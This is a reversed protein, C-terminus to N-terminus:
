QRNLIKYIYINNESGILKTGSATLKNSFLLNTDNLIVFESYKKYVKFITDLVANESVTVGKLDMLYLSNQTSNDVASIARQNRNIGLEKLYRGLNNYKGYKPDSAMWSGPDYRDQFVHRSFWAGHILLSVFVTIVIYNLPQHASIAIKVFTLLQFFIAPVMSIIYYDHEPFQSMMMLFYILNGLWLFLTVKLLLKDAKKYFYIIVAFTLLLTWYMYKSYYQKLWVDKIEKITEGFQAANEIPKIKLLFASSTYTTSLWSAYSYWLICLMVPIFLLLLSRSYQFKPTKRNRIIEQVTIILMVMVSILNTVKILCALSCFIILMWLDLRDEKIRFRFFHLWGLLILALGATDPLFNPTYYALVPSLYM